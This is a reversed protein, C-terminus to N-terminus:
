TGISVGLSLRVIRAERRRQARAHHAIVEMQQHAHVGAFLDGVRLDAVTKAEVVAGLGFAFEGVALDRGQPLLPGAERFQDFLHFLGEGAPEVLGM